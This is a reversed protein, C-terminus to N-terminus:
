CSLAEKAAEVARVTKQLSELRDRAEQLRKEYKQVLEVFQEGDIGLEIIDKQDNWLAVLYNVDDKFKRFDRCLAIGTETLPEHTQMAARRFHGVLGAAGARLAELRRDLVTKEVSHWTRAGLWQATVPFVQMVTQKEAKTFDDSFEGRWIARLIAHIAVDFDRGIEPSWGAGPLVAYNSRLEDRFV